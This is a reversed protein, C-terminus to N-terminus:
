DTVRFFTLMSHVSFHTYVDYDDNGDKGDGRRAGVVSVDEDSEKQM